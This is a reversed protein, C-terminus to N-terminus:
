CHFAQAVVVAAVSQDEIPIAEAAGPLTSVDPVVEELIHRLEELPEVAIVDARFKILGRTLKGTGAGLDVVRCQPAHELLWSIAERPYEPRGHEYEAAVGAFSRAREDTWENV